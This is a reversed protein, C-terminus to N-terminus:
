AVMGSGPTDSMGLLELDVLFFFVLKRGAEFFDLWLLLLNVDLAEDLAAAAALFSSAEFARAGAFAGAAAAAANGFAAAEFGRAFGSVLLSVDAVVVLSFFLSVLLGNGEVVLLMACGCGLLVVAAAAVATFAAAAVGGVVVVVPGLSGVASTVALLLLLRFRLALGILLVLILMPLEKRRWFDSTDFRELLSTAAADVFSVVSSAGFLLLLTALSGLDVPAKTASAEPLGRSSVAFASPPLSEDDDKDCEDDAFASDRSFFFRDIATVMAVADAITGAKESCSWAM